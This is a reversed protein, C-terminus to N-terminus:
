GASGLAVPWCDAFAWAVPSEYFTWDAPIGYFVKTLGVVYPLVTLALIPVYVHLITLWRFRQSDAYDVPRGIEFVFKRQGFTALRVTKWYARFWGLQDRKTWPIGSVTSRLTELSSGCEPCRDSTLTRLNYACEPCFLDESIPPLSERSTHEVSTQEGSNAQPTQEDAM